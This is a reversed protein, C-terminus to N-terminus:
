SVILIDTRYEKDKEIVSTVTDSVTLAEFSELVLSLFSFSVPAVSAAICKHFNYLIGLAHVARDVVFEQEQVQHRGLKDM